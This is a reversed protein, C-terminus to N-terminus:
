PILKYQIAYQLLTAFIGTYSISKVTTILNVASLVKATTLTPLRNKAEWYGFIYEAIGFAVAVIAAWTLGICLLLIGFMLIAHLASTVNLLGAWGKATIKTQAWTSNMVLTVLYNQLFFAGILVAICWFFSLHSFLM